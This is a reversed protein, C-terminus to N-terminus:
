GGLLSELDPVVEFEAEPIDLLGAPPPPPNKQLDQVATLHLGGLNVTVNTSGAASPAFRARNMIGAHWQALSSRAIAIRTSEPNLIGMAAQVAADDLIEDAEGAKAEAAVVDLAHWAAFREPNGKIWYNLVHCSTHFEAAIKRWSAGAGRAEFVEEEHATLYAEQQQRIPNGAM